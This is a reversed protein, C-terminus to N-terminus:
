AGVLSAGLAATAARTGAQYAERVANALRAGHLRGVEGLVGPLAKADITGNLPSATAGAIAHRLLGALYTATELATHGLIPYGDMAAIEARTLDVRVVLGTSEEELVRARGQADQEYGQRLAAHLEALASDRATAVAQEVAKRLRPDSRLARLDNAAEGLVGGGEDKAVAEVALRSAIVLVSSIAGEGAVAARAALIDAAEAEQEM